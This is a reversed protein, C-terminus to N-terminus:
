APEEIVALHNSSGSLPREVTVPVTPMCFVAKLMKPLWTPVDFAKVAVSLLKSSKPNEWDTIARGLLVGYESVRANARVVGPPAPRSFKVWDSVTTGAAEATGGHRIKELDIM